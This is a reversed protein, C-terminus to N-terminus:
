ALSNGCIGDFRHSSVIESSYNIFLFILKAVKIKSDYANQATNLQSLFKNIM